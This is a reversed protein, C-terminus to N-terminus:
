SERINVVITWECDNNNLTTGKSDTWNFTLKDLRPLLPNYEVPNQIVVNAFNGFNTLLLKSNFGQVTGTPDRTLKYNEKAGIDLRNMNFTDNLKLYIYEDLIKYFSPAIQITAFPTDTKAFGLNWGLGWEDDLDKFNTTLPTSWRISFLIPDTFRQRNLYSSPLLYLMNSQIFSNMNSQTTNTIANLNSQLAQYNTYLTTYQRMFDGYGFSSIPFGAYNLRDNAGFLVPTSFFFKSNFIKLINGYSPNFLEPKATPDPPANPNFWNSGLLLPVETILDASTVYGFDYRNPLFFRVLSQFQETPSYGRLSIYYTNDLTSTYPNLPLTQLYGGFYFGKMTTDNVFYNSEQGWKGVTTTPTSIYLDSALTSYNSYGFVVSHQYEPYDLGSLDTVPTYTNQSRTMQIKMTPYFIQWGTKISFSIDPAVNRNGQIFPASTFLAWKSGNYGSFIQTPPRITPIQQTPDLFQFVSKQIYGSQENFLGTNVVREITYFKDQFGTEESLLFYSDLFGTRSVILKSYTNPIPDQNAPNRTLNITLAEPWTTNTFDNFLFTQLTSAGQQQGRNYTLVAISDGAPDCGISIASKSFIKSAYADPNDYNPTGYLITSTGNLEAAIFFGKKETALIQTVRINTSVTYTPQIPLEDVVGTTPNLAKVIVQGINSTVQLGYFLFENSTGSFGIYYIAPITILPSRIADSFLIDHPIVGRFSFFRDNSRVNVNGYPYSWLSLSNDEILAYGNVNACFFSPRVLNTQQQTRGDITSWSLFANPDQIFPATDIYHIHSNVQPVSQEYIQTTEDYGLPPGFQSLTAQTTTSPLIPVVMGTRDVNETGYFSSFSSPTYAYPYAIPSGVLNRIYGVTNSDTFAVVSYYANPDALLVKGNQTYGTVITSTQRFSTDRNYTMYTGLFSDFGQNLTLANSYVRTSELNFKYIATNLLLSFSQQNYVQSTLFIGLYQINSNPDNSGLFNTKFTIRDVQWIGDSPLFTFGCVGLGLALEQETNQYIYGKLSGNTTTNTYQKIYPSQPIDQRFNSNHAESLFHTGYYQAIKYQRSTPTSIYNYNSILNPTLLNNLSDTYFYSQIAPDTNYPSLNRFFYNNIPDCRLVATPNINSTTNAPAFPVYDTLDNSVFDSNYGIAPPAATPFTNLPNKTPDQQWLTSAIPLRLLDPDALRANYYSTLNCIPNSLPSYNDLSTSLTLFSTSPFSPIIKFNVANTQLNLPRISIYYTNTAYVNFTVNTSLQTIPIITSLKYHIPNEYRNCTVDALFAGVDHYIFAVLDSNSNAVESYTIFQLQLPYKIYTSSPYPDFPAPARFSFFANSLSVNLLSPSTWVSSFYSFSSLWNTNFNSFSSLGPIVSYRPVLSGISSFSSPTVYTYVSSFLQETPYGSQISSLYEPTRFQTPRPFVEVQLTQRVKSRVSFLTYQTAKIDTIVDTCRRRYEVNLYQNEDIANRTQDLNQQGISFPFNSTAPFVFNGPPGMNTSVTQIPLPLNTLSPWYSYVPDLAARLINTSISPSSIPNELLVGGPGKLLDLGNQILFYNTSLQLYYEKSYTGRSIGMYTALQIELFKYMDQFVGVRQILEVSQNVYTQQTYNYYQLQANLFSNYKSTLLNVLSANLSPSTITIKNTVSDVTVVYKNIPRYRFTNQLRYEDLSARNTQVLSLIVPDDIGQFQYCVYTKVDSGAPLLSTTFTFPITTTTDLIADRLVPYYYAVLVQDATYFSSAPAYQNQFYSTAIQQRTPNPIYANTLSNYFYDGPYNFNISFDGNIQFLTNFDSIGNPYDYYNPPTNLRTNLEQILSNITYTGPRITTNLINKLFEGSSIKVPQNSTNYVIRDKEELQILLNEKDTRFYYFASLLSIQSIQFSKVNNYTRPLMLTCFTPQPFVVRDRDRSQLTILTTKERRESPKTESAEGSPPEYLGYNMDRRLQNVGFALQTSLTSFTPGASLGQALKYAFAAFDPADQSQKLTSIRQIDSEDDTTSGDPYVFVSEDDSESDSVAFPRYYPQQPNQRSAM